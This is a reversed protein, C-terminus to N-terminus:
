KAATCHFICWQAAYATEPPFPLAASHIWSVYLLVTSRGRSGATWFHPVPFRRGSGTRFFAPAASAAKLPFAPAPTGSFVSSKVHVCFRHEPIFFRCLIKVMCQRDAVASDSGHDKATCCIFHQLQILVRDPGAALPVPVIRICPLSQFFDPLQQFLFANRFCFFDSEFFHLAHRRIGSM